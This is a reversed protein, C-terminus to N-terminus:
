FAFAPEQGAKFLVREMILVQEIAEGEAFFDGEEAGREM